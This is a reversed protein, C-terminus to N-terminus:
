TQNQHKNGHHVCVNLIQYQSSTISRRKSTSLSITHARDKPQFEQGQVSYVHDEM